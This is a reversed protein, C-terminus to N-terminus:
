ADASRTMWEPRTYQSRRSRPLVGSTGTMRRLCPLPWEHGRKPLAGPGSDISRPKCSVGDAEM